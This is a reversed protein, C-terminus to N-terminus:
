QSLRVWEAWWGCGDHPYPGAYVLEVESGPAMERYGPMDRIMSFHVFGPGPRGPITVAGWGEEQHWFTCVGREPAAKGRPERTRRWSFGWVGIM